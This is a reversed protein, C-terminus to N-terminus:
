EELVPMLIYGEKRLLAILGNEGALHGAGVAIFIPQKQMLTTLKPIWKKNRENLLANTADGMGMETDMILAHLTNLDEQKYAQVMKQFLSDLAAPNELTELIMEAQHALPINNLSQMQEEPTELALLSVDGKKAKQFLEEDFSKMKGYREKMILAELFLPKFKQYLKIETGGMGARKMGALFKEYNDGYIIEASSDEPLVMMKSLAIKDSFGLDFDIELVLAAVSDLKDLVRDPLEFEKKPMLHITGYLYSPSSTSDKKIKWLLSNATENQAETDLAGLIIVLLLVAVQVVYKIM